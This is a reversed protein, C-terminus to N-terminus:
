FHSLPNQQKEFYYVARWVTAVSSKTEEATAQVATTRNFGNKVQQQFEKYYVFKMFVSPSMLGLHMALQAYGQEFFEYKTLQPKM